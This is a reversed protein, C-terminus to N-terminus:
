AGVNRQDSRGIDPLKTSIGATPDDVGGAIRDWDPGLGDGAFALTSFPRPRQSRRSPNRRRESRWGRVAFGSGASKRSRAAISWGGRSRRDPRHGARQDIRSPPPPDANAGSSVEPRRARPMGAVVLRRVARNESAHQQRRRSASNRISAITTPWAPPRCRRTQQPRRRAAGAASPQERECQGRHQGHVM